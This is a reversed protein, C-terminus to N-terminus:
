RRRCEKRIFVESQLTFLYTRDCDPRHFLPLRLANELFRPLHREKTNEANRRKWLGLKGCDRFSRASASTTGMRSSFTTFARGAPVMQGPATFWNSNQLLFRAGVKRREDRPPRNWERWCAYRKKEKVDQRALALQVSILAKLALRTQVSVELSLQPEYARLSNVLLSSAIKCVEM